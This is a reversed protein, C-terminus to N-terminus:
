IEDPNIKSIRGESADRLGKQVSELAEKNQFLWIETSPIEVVPILLIEGRKNKYVKVRKSDKILEGLTIRNRDDVTKTSIEKFKDDIKLINQQM